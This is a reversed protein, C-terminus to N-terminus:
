SLNEHDVGNVSNEKRVGLVWKMTDRVKKIRYAYIFPNIAPNVHTSWSAFVKISKYALNQEFFDPNGTIWITTFVAIIPSLCLIYSGVILGFTIAM